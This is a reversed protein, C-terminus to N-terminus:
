EVPVGDVKLTVVINGRTAKSYPCMAHAEAVLKGVTEADLGPVSVDLVASLFYGSDDSNLSIEATVVSGEASVKHQRAVHELASGFCASYGAAFLQEPNTVTGTKNTRGGPPALEVSLNGDSTQSHGNRGGKTAAKATYLTPM